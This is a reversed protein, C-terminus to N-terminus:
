GSLNSSCGRNLAFGSKKGKTSITTLLTKHMYCYTVGSKFFNRRVFSLSM